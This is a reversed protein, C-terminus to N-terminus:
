DNKYPIYEFEGTLQRKKKVGWIRNVLGGFFLGTILLLMFFAILTDGYSIGGVFIEAPTNTATKLNYPLYNVVVGAWDTGYHEVFLNGSCIYNLEAFSAHNSWNTAVIINDCYVRTYNNKDMTRETFYISQITTDGIASITSSANSFLNRSYTITDVQIM